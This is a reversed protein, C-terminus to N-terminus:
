WFRAAKKAGADGFDDPRGRKEPVTQGGGFMGPVSPMGPGNPWMTGPPLQQGLALMAQAQAMQMRLQNLQMETTQRVDNPLSRGQLMTSLQHIQAQLQPLSDMLMQQVEEVSTQGPQQDTYLEQDLDTDGGAGEAAADEANRSEEMAKEIYDSVRTRTPKDMMLKDLSAVRKGCNPCAFDKELLQTQICEECYSTNCCPTKVADRFLRGDTPCALTADTPPRERVEAVTLGKPRSM